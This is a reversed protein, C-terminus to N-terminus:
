PRFSISDLPATGAGGLNPTVRGDSTIDVPRPSNSEAIVTFRRTAAPRYGAPLIFAAGQGGSAGGYLEATGELHVVGGRDKWFGVPQLGNGANRWTWGSASGTCFTAPISCQLPVAAAPAVLTTPEGAFDAPSADRGPAGTAGQSGAPGAAGQPGAPGVLGQSGPPGVRGPAGDRGALAKRTSVRLKDLTVAQSRLQRSGVSNAPLTVAAYSTGGLAVFLALFSVHHARVYARMTRFTV